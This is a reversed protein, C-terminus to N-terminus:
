PNIFNISMERMVLRMNFCYALRGDISGRYHLGIATDRALDDVIWISGSDGGASLINGPNPKTSNPSLCIVGRDDFGDIIGYTVGTTIGSKAVQIGNSINAAARTLHKTLEYISIDYQRRNNLEVIACDYTPSNKIVRGIIDNNQPHSVLPQSVADNNRGDAGILVHHNSLGVISASEHRMVVGLTGKEYTHINRIEIGGEVVAFSVGERSHLLPTNVLVDTQKGEIKKPLTEGKLVSRALKNHVHIRICLEETRVGSKYRYGIDIHHVGSLAMLRKRNRRLIQLLEKEEKTAM